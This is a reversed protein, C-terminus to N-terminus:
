GSVLKRSYPPSPDAGWVWLKTSNSVKTEMVHDRAPVQLQMYEAVWNPELPTSQAQNISAKVSVGRGSLASDPNGAHPGM